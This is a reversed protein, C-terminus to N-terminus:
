ARSRRRQVVLFLALIGLGAIIASSPEPDLILYGDSGVFPEGLVSSNGFTSHFQDGEFPVNLMRFPFGFMNYGPLGLTSIYVTAIKGNQTISAGNATANDIEWIQDSAFVDPPGLLAQGPAPYASNGSFITGTVVDVGVIRPEGPPAVLQGSGLSVFLDIYTISDVDPGVGTVFIDLPIIPNGGIEYLHSGVVITPKAEANPANRLV